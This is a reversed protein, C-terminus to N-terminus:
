QRAVCCKGYIMALLIWNRYKELLELCRFVFFIHVFFIRLKQSSVCPSYVSDFWAVGPCRVPTQLLQVEEEEEEEEEGEKEEGEQGRFRRHPPAVRLPTVRSALLLASWRRPCSRDLRGPGGRGAFPDERGRRGGGGEEGGGEGLFDPARPLRGFPTTSFKSMLTPSSWRRCLLPASQGCGQSLLRRDGYLKTCRTTRTNREREQM